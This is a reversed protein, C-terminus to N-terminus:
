GPLGGDGGDTGGPSTLTVAALSGQETLTPEEFQQRGSQNEM